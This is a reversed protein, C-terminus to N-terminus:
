REEFDDNWYMSEEQERGTCYGQSSLWASQGIERADGEVRRTRNGPRRREM